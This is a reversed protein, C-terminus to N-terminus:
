QEIIRWLWTDLTYISTYMTPSTELCSKEQCHLLSEKARVLACDLTWYFRKSFLEFSKVAEWVYALTGCSLACRSIMRYCCTKSRYGRSSNM